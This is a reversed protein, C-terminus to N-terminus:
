QNPAPHWAPPTARTDDRANDIQSQRHQRALSRITAYPDLAEAKVRDLQDLVRERADLAGVGLRGYGVDRAPTGGIWTLPDLLFDFGFGAADRPNSPGLIPLYLFPGAPAGWVAFTIGGDSDHDPWGWGTAVDFVGAVGVTSNVVFRMLTDGARRPKGQLMDNGLAVPEGLNALVNHAHDRVVAPVVHRYALALPRLVVVDIGDNIAYFVRNTPELPDNTEQFEAVAEADNAPPPTACGGISVLALVAALPALRSCAHMMEVPM